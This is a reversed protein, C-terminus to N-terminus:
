GSRRRCRPSPRPPLPAPRARYDYQSGRRDCDRHRNVTIALVYDRHRNVTIALMTIPDGPSPFWTTTLGLRQFRARRIVSWDFHQLLLDPHLICNPHVHSRENRSIRFKLMSQLIGQSSEDLVDNVKRKETWQLQVKKRWFGVVPDMKM